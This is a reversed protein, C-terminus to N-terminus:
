NRVSVAPARTVQLIKREIYVGYQTFIEDREFWKRQSLYEEDTLQPGIRAPSRSVPLSKRLIFVM